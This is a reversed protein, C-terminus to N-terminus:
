EQQSTWSCEGNMNLSHWQFNDLLFELIETDTPENTM